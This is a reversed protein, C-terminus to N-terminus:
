PLFASSRLLLTAVVVLLLWQFDFEEDYVLRYGGRKGHSGDLIAKNGAHDEFDVHLPPMRIVFGRPRTLPQSELVTKAALEAAIKGERAVRLKVEVDSNPIQLVFLSPPSFGSYETNTITCVMPIPDGSSFNIRVYSQAVMQLIILVLPLAVFGIFTLIFWLPAEEDGREAGIKAIMTALLPALGLLMVVTLLRAQRKAAARIEGDSGTFACYRRTFRTTYTVRLEETAM